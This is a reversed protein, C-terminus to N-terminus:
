LAFVEKGSDNVLHDLNVTFLNLNEGCVVLPVAYGVLFVLFANNVCNSVKACLSKIILKILSIDPRQGSGQWLSKKYFTGRSEEFIKLAQCFFPFTYLITTVIKYAQMTLHIYCAGGLTNSERRSIHSFAHFPSLFQLFALKGCLKRFNPVRHPVRVCNKTCFYPNDRCLIVKIFKM